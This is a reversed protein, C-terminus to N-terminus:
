HIRSAVTGVAQALRAFERSKDLFLAAGANLYRKRYAEVANNSFVVFCVAPEIGRVAQLVQLGSGGELQVDLVVVDPRLVLIREICDRPTGAEGVVDMDAAALLDNVRERIVSSDDALFVRVPHSSSM